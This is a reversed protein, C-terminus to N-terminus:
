HVINFKLIYKESNRIKYRNNTKFSNYKMFYIQNTQPQYKKEQKWSFM